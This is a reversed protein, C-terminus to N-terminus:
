SSGQGAAVGSAHPVQDPPAITLEEAEPHVQGDARPDPRRRHLRVHRNRGRGPEQGLRGDVGPLPHRGFIMAPLDWSADPVAEILEVFGQRVGDPGRRVTGNGIFIADDTYDAVIEDIDQAGLAEVHHQFTEQPTRAM